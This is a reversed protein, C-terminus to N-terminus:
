IFKILYYVYVNKPRTEYSTKITTYDAPPSSPDKAPKPPKISSDAVPEGSDIDPTNAPVAPASGDDGTPINATTNPQTYPHLHYQLADQEISGVESSKKNNPLVRSDADPDNGSNMDVMRLFYGRYDPVRFVTQADDGDRNYQIGLVAHLMGYDAQKLLRGDCVMWGGSETVTAFAPQESPNVSPSIKGAFAIVSGIPPTAQMITLPGPIPPYPNM